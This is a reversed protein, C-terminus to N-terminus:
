CLSINQVATLLLWLWPARTRGTRDVAQLAEFPAIDLESTMRPCPVRNPPLLPGLRFGKVESRTGQDMAGRKEKYFFVAESKLLDSHAEFNLEFLWLPDLLLFPASSPVWCLDARRVRHCHCNCTVRSLPASSPVWWLDARRVTAPSERCLHWHLHPYGACIREDSLQQHSAVFTRILARPFRM